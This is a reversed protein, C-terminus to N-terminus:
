GKLDRLVKENSLHDLIACVLHHLRQDKRYDALASYDVRQYKLLEQSVNASQDKKPYVAIAHGGNSRILKMSPVDTFGDGIYIMHTFPMYKLHEDLHENLDQDNEIELIGKNIRFVFQTKMTYNVALKPWVAEKNEDYLFECAYIKKFHKAIPTAEIIEKLGSSIIYHEVEIDRKIGEEKILDFWQEVGDFYEIQPGYKALSEKTIAQHKEKSTKVMAYLYTLIHDMHHSISWEDVEKWFTSSDNMGLDDFYGFEQMDHTSLTKDFDYILAVKM